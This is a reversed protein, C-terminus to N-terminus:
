CLIGAKYQSQQNFFPVGPVICIEAIRAPKRECNESCGDAALTSREERQRKEEKHLHIHPHPPVHLYSTLKLGPEEPGDGKGKSVSDKMAGPKVILGPQSTLSGQSGAWAHAEAGLKEM